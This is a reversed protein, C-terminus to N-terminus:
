PVRISFFISIVMSFLSSIKFIWLDYEDATLHRLKCPIGSLSSLHCKLLKVAENSGHDRLDLVMEEAEKNSGVLIIYINYQHMVYLNEISVM